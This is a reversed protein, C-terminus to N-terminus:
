RGFTRSRGPDETAGIDANGNGNAEQFGQGGESPTCIERMKQEGESSACDGSVRQLVQARMETEM